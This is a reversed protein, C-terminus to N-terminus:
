ERVLMVAVIGFALVQVIALIRTITKIHKM